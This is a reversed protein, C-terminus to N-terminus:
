LEDDVPWQRQFIGMTIWAVAQSAETQTPSLNTLM